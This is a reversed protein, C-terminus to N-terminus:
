DFSYGWSYFLTDMHTNIHGLMKSGTGHSSTVPNLCWLYRALFILGVWIGYSVPFLRTYVYEGLNLCALCIKWGKQFIMSSVLHLFSQFNM